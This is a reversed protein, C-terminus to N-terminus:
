LPVGSAGPRTTVSISRAWQSVNDSWTRAFPMSSQASGSCGYCSGVSRTQPAAYWIGAALTASSPACCCFGAGMRQRTYMPSGSFGCNRPGCSGSANARLIKSLLPGLPSFLSYRNLRSVAKNSNLSSLLSLCMLSRTARHLFISPDVHLHDPQRCLM